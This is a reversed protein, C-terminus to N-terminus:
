HQGNMDTMHFSLFTERPSVSVTVKHKGRGAEQMFEGCGISITRASQHRRESQEQGATSERPM